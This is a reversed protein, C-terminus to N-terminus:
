KIGLYSCLGASQEQNLKIYKIADVISPTERERRKTERGNLKQGNYGNIFWRISFKEKCHSHCAQLWSVSAVMEWSSLLLVLRRWGGLSKKVEIGICVHFSVSPVDFSDPNWTFHFLLIMCWGLGALGMIMKWCTSLSLGGTDVLKSDANLKNSLEHKKSIYDTCDLRIITAINRRPM